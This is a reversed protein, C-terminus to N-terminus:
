SARVLAASFYTYQVGSASGYITASAGSSQQAYFQIYDTTGNLNVLFSGVANVGFTANGVGNGAQYSSGTKYLNVGTQGVASAPGNAAITVQYYGAVPPMYAYAPVSLGNLTATSGTNNFATTTDFNKANIQVLTFVGNSLTQPASLYASFAPMNGSVMM